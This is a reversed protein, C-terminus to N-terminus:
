MRMQFIITRTRKPIIICCSRDGYKSTDSNIMYKYRNRDFIVSTIKKELAKKALVKGAEFAADAKKGKKHLDKAEGQVGALTKGSVDDIVQGYIFRNSRFISLRPREANGFVKKRVRLRRKEKNGRLTLKAM